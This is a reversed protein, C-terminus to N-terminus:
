FAISRTKAEATLVAASFFVFHGKPCQSKLRRLGVKHIQLRSKLRLPVMKDFVFNLHTRGLPQRLPAVYYHRAKRYKCLMSKSKTLPCTNQAIDDSTCVYGTLDASCATPDPNVSHLHSRARQEQSYSSTPYHVACVIDM